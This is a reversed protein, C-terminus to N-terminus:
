SRANRPRLTRLLQRAQHIWRRHERRFFRPNSRSQELITALQSRAEDRHGLRDLAEALWYRAEPDSGRTELFYELFERGKETSGTNVYSKGVERIVDGLGYQPNLRYTEEYAELAAPWEERREFVRGLSYRHDPDAPAIRVAERLHREAEDLRGAELCTLGLQHRADADHPNLRLVKLHEQLARESRRGSEYVRLRQWGLYALPLMLFLPLSALFATMVYFVPATLWSLVFAAAAAAWPVFSLERVAWVTYAAVLLTLLLRGISIGLTGPVLMVFQPLLLQVPAVVLFVLGWLPLLASAAGRYEARTVTFGFGDGSLSNGLGVLVPLYVVLLFILAQVLGSGFLSFVVGPAGVGEFERLPAYVSNRVADYVVFGLAFLSAGLVPSKRAALARLADGRFALSAFLAAAYNM